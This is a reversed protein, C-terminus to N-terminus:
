SKHGKKDFVSRLAFYGGVATLILVEYLSVWSDRVNFAIELSDLIIFVFLAAVLSLVILPRTHKALWSDSKNDSEWRKTLEQQQSAILNQLEMRQEHSINPEKDIMNKVVGLVGKDPLLHGVLDLIRPSTQKLWSGVKTDKLKTKTM